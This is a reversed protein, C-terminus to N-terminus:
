PPESARDGLPDSPERDTADPGTSPPRYIGQGLFLGLFAAVGGIALLVLGGLLILAWAPVEQSVTPVVYTETLTGTFSVPAHGFNSVSLLYDSHVAGRLTWVGTVGGTWNVLSKGTPCLADATPCPAAVWLSVSAPGSSNWGLSLTGSYASVEAVVWTRTANAGLDTVSVTNSRMDTPAAPLFFLSIMLGAGIVAIGAGAVFLGPRM